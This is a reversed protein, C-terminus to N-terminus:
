DTQERWYDSYAPYAWRARLRKYGIMDGQRYAAVRWPKLAEGQFAVAVLRSRRYAVWPLFRRVSELLPFPLMFERHFKVAIWRSHVSLRDRGAYSMFRDDSLLRSPRSRPAELVIRNFDEYIHRFQGPYFAVVSSNGFYYREGLFRRLRRQVRWLPLFSNNLMYLAPRRAIQEAIRAVDGLIMTDLDILIAPAADAETVAPAFASLKLRCGVKMEDFSLSFPPFPKFEIGGRYGGGRQDTVCLFRFPVSAHAAVADYLRNVDGPGYKSGWKVCVIQLRTDTM